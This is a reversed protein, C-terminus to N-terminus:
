CHECDGTYLDCVCVQVRDGCERPKQNKLYQNYQAIQQNDSM